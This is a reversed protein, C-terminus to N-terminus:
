DWVFKWEGKELKWVTHFVGTVEKVNGTSDPKSFQYRGYTYGLTGCESVDIFDPKWTLKTGPMSNKEYFKRINEKGKILQGNGRSIVASDAAFFWFAEAVGKEGAMAAFDTEAKLIGNRAEEPNVKQKCSLVLMAMVIMFLAKKMFETKLSLEFEPLYVTLKWRLLGTM